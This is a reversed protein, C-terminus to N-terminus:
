SRSEFKLKVREVLFACEILNFNVRLWIKKKEKENMRISFFNDVM